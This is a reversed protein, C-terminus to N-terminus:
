NKLIANVLLSEVLLNISIGKEECLGNAQVLVNENLRLEVVVKDDIYEELAGVEVFPDEEIEDLFIPDDSYDLEIDGDIKFEDLEDLFDDIKLEKNKSM